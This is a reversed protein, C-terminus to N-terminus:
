GSGMRRARIVSRGHIASVEGAQEVDDLGVDDREGPCPDCRAVLEEPGRDQAFVIQGDDDYWKPMEPMSM